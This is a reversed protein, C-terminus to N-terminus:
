PFSFGVSSMPMVIGDSGPMEGQGGIREFFADLLARRIMLVELRM